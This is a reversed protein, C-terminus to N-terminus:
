NKCALIIKCKYSIGKTNRNTSIGILDRFFWKKWKFNKLFYFNVLNKEYEDIFDFVDNFESNINMFLKLCKNTSESRITLSKESGLFVIPRYASAWKEKTHYLEIM